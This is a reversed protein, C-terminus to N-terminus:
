KVAEIKKIAEVKYDTFDNAIKRLDENKSTLAYLYVERSAYELSGRLLNMYIKNDTSSGVSLYVGKISLDVTTSAQYETDYIKKYMEKLITIENKERALEAKIIAQQDESKITSLVQRLEKGQEENYMIIATIGDSENQSIAQKEVCVPLSSLVSQSREESLTQQKKNFAYVILYTLTSGLLFIFVYSFILKKSFLGSYVSETQQKIEEM